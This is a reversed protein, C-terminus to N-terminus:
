SDWCASDFTWPRLCRSVSRGTTWVEDAGGPAPVLPVIPPDGAPAHATPQVFTPMDHDFAICNSLFLVEDFPVPHRFDRRFPVLWSGPTDHLLVWSDQV